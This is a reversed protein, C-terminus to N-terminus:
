GRCRSALTGDRCRGLCRTREVAKFERTTADDDLLAQILVQDGMKALAEAPNWREGRDQEKLAELLPEVSAVSGIKRLAEAAKERVDADQDKLLLILPEVAPKGVKSLAEAADWRVQWSEDRLADILPEILAPDRMNGLAQAAKQRVSPDEKYQLAKLLAKTDKKGEMEDVDAETLQQQQQQPQPQQKKSGFAM